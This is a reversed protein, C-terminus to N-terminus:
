ICLNPVFKFEHMVCIGSSEFSVFKIFNLPQSHMPSTAINFHIKLFASFTRVVQWEVKEELSSFDFTVICIM